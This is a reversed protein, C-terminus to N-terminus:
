EKMRVRKEEEEKNNNSNSLNIFNTNPNEMKVAELEELKSSFYKIAGSGAIFKHIEVRGPDLGKAKKHQVTGVDM